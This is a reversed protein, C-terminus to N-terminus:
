ERESRTPPTSMRTRKASELADRVQQEEEQTLRRPVVPPPRRAAMKAADPSCETVFSIGLDTAEFYGVVPRDELRVHQIDILRERQLIEISTSARPNRPGYETYFYAGVGDTRRVVAYLHAGYILQTANTFEAYSQHENGPASGSLKGLNQAVLSRNSSAHGEPYTTEPFRDYGFCILEVLTLEDSSLRSLIEVFTLQRAQYSKTASNLLSAWREQMSEDSGELSAKEMFPVLLKTPVPNLQLGELEARRRAKSAIEFLVDERQVRIQDAKLGRAETFPRIIDVLASVLRGTEHSPIETKIEASAKLGVGLDISLQPSTGSKQNPM